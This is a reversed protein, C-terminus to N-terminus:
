DKILKQTVKNGDKGIFTVFYMGSSLNGTNITTQSSNYTFNGVVKGVTNTIVVKRIDATSNVTLVDRVPNPYMQIKGALPNERTSVLELQGWKYSAITDGAVDLKRNDGGNWEGGNWGTGKFFKFEKQGEPVVLSISYVSDANGDVMEFAPDKGPEIWGPFSGAVYVKEDKKLGAGKMNVNLTLAVLATSDNSAYIDDFYIDIDSTLRGVPEQFDPMVAIIPYRGKDIDGNQWFDFVMDVWKNTATQTNISTLEHTGGDPSGEGKFKVISSVPKWVKYHVYRYTKMDLSDQSDSIKGWFGCWPQGVMSRHLKCVYDSTNIGSKDPNPIVTVSSLDTAPDKIMINMPIPEYDEVMQVPASGPTPDNNAYIDDFYIDIDSTLRGSPEQFDPMVAIIPYKGPDYTGDQWFDFVIDEWENTKTQPNMSELEHTGSDPSGEGKFKVVSVVPKWVKYHVYRNAKLDLSDQVNTIKGWFGCWPQGVMSRHLKCVYGSTNIGTKDPNPVVTVSSFDTAPDKIMINMPIPEYNTIKQQAWTIGSYALCMVFLLTFKKM